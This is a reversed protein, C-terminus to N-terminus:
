QYLSEVYEANPVGYGVPDLPDPDRVTLEWVKQPVPAHTVQVLRSWVTNNPDDWALEQSVNRHGDVGLVVGNPLLDADGTNPSFYPPEEKYEWVQAAVWDAPDPSSVQLAYEVVRSWPDAIPGDVNSYLLVHGGPLMEPAHLHNFWTGAVLPIDGAEGFRWIVKGTVRDIKLLMGLNTASVLITDDTSDWLVANGHSWDKTGGALPYVV